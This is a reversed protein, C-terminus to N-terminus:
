NASVPWKTSAVSCALLEFWAMSRMMLKKGSSRRSCSSMSRDSFMRASMECRRIGRSAPEPRMAAMSIMSFEGSIESKIKLPSTVLILSTIDRELRSPM